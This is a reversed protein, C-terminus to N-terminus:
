ASPTGLGQNLAELLARAIVMPKSLGLLLQTILSELDLKYSTQVIVEDLKYLIYIIILDLALICSIGHIKM